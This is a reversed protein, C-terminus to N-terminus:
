SPSLLYGAFSSHGGYVSAPGTRCSFCIHQGSTIYKISTLTTTPVGSRVDTSTMPLNNNGDQWVSSTNATQRLSFAWQRNDNYNSYVTGMLLYYGTVPATFSRNSTNFNGGENLTTADWVMPQLVSVNYDSRNTYASFCMNKDKRYGNVHLKTTPNNTGIGVDGGSEIRIRENGSTNLTITDNSPFGISTNTDSAHYMYNSTTLSAASVGGSTTVPRTITGSTIKSADLNAIRAAAVTGTTIKSGDLNPIRATGLTGSTIKSADLNAIRAAAVTGTTIKSGDLNAIRAAAVTGTTVQSGNLTTLGSGDGTVTGSVEVDGAFKQINTTAM